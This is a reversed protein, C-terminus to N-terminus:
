HSDQDPRDLESKLLYKVLLVENGKENYMLEDVLHKSLMIGFGGPALGSAERVMLHRVPEDPPNSIAAHYLEDLKFGKGPDKIRCEVMGKGRVYSIEVYEDPDLKGGYRVANILMERFAYGVATKELEPLGSFEHLFQVMREATGLECRAMLRIWAPTASIVEIGDDWCPGQMALRIAQVLADLSYPTSFFSFAHERLAAIVDMPTSEGTLIIMRTHPRVGRIKRLLELDSKASTAEATVILDFAQSCVLSFASENNSAYEIKWGQASLHQVLLSESDGGAVVLLATRSDAAKDAQIASSSHM